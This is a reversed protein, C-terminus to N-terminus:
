VHQPQEEDYPQAWSINSLAVISSGVCVAIVAMLLAIGVFESFLSM